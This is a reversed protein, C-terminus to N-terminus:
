RLDDRGIMALYAELEADSATRSLLHADGAM